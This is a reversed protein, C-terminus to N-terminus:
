SGPTYENDPIRENRVAREAIDGLAMGLRAVDQGKGIGSTSGVSSCSCIDTADTAAASPSESTGM